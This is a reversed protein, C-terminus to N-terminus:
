RGAPELFGRRPPRFPARVEQPLRADAVRFGVTGRSFTTDHAELRPEGRWALTLNPGKAVLALRGRLPLDGEVPARALETWQSGDFKGIFVERSKLDIGGLYGRQANHGVSPATVRVLLGVNGEGQKAEVEVSVQVDKWDPGCLLLKEGARYDNVPAAPRRGLRLGGREFSFFQHHGYYNWDDLCDEDALSSEFPLEVVRPPCGKPEALAVGSALPEGLQPWGEEDFTFPQVFLARRWGGDRDRKAHFVHWWEQGDLSAVFGSHGVGYTKDTSVFLPQPHKKWNAPDLPDDGVLELVGLKYTPLWSAATSYTILTRSPSPVVQPAEHLGRSGEREETREWLYDDNDCLLVRPGGLQTPTALPAIYLYQQDTGPADWGSWLAYRKGKHELVTMDIAWINPSKGDPGDGTAMPGHLTYPGLPDAGESELVYTLHNANKGDSAAFYIYWRGDLHHLEPAWVEKSYPGSEPATWVVYPRGLTTLRDSVWITIGTNGQSQCWLYRDANPDRVVWPDAGEAIPNVFQGAPLDGAVVAAPPPAQEALGPQLPAIVGVSAVLLLPLLLRLTRMSMM